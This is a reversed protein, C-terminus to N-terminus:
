GIVYDGISREYIAAVCEVIDEDIQVKQAFENTWASQDNEVVTLPRRYGSRHAVEFDVGPPLRLRNAIWRSEPGESQGIRGYLRGEFVEPWEDDTRCTSM